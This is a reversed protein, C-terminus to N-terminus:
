QFLTKRRGILGMSRTVTEEANKGGKAGYFLGSTTHELSEIREILREKLVTADYTSM